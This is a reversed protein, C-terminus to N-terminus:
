IIPSHLCQINKINIKNLIKHNTMFILFDQKLYAIKNRLIKFLVNCICFNIGLQFNNM